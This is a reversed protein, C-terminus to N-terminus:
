LSISVLQILQFFLPSQLWSDELQLVKAIGNVGEDKNTYRDSSTTHQECAFCSTVTVTAVGLLKANM